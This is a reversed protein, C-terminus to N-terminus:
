VEFLVGHGNEMLWVRHRVAEDGQKVMEPVSPMPIPPRPMFTTPANQGHFVAEANACVLQRRRVASGDMPKVSKMSNRAEILTVDVSFRDSPLLKKLMPQELMAPLCKSAM